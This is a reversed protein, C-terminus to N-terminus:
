RQVGLTRRLDHLNGTFPTTNADLLALADNLAAELTPVCRISKAIEPSVWSLATVAGRIIPNDIPIFAALTVDDRKPTMYRAQAAAVKKRTAATFKSPDNLAIVVYRKGRRIGDDALPVLKQFYADIEGVTVPEDFRSLLIPYFRDNLAAPV